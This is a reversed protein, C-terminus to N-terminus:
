SLKKGSVSRKNYEFGSGCLSIIKYGLPDQNTGVVSGLHSIIIFSSAKTISRFTLTPPASQLLFSAMGGGRMCEDHGKQM